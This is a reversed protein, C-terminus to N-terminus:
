DGPRGNSRLRDLIALISEAEAAEHRAAVTAQRAEALEQQMALIRDYAAILATKAEILRDTLADKEARAQALEARERDAAALRDQVGAVADGAEILLRNLEENRSEAALLEAKADMGGADEDAEYDETAIVGRHREDLEHNLDAAPLEVVDRQAGGGGAVIRWRGEDARRRVKRRVIEQPLDLWQALEGFSLRLSDKM